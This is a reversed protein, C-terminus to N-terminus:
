DAKSAIGQRTYIQIHGLKKCCRGRTHQGSEGHPDSEKKKNQHRNAVIGQVTKITRPTATPRQGLSIILIEPIEDLFTGRVADLPFEGLAWDGV